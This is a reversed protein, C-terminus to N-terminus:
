LHFAVTGNKSIKDWDDFDTGLEGLKTKGNKLTGNKATILIEQVGELIYSYIRLSCDVPARGATGGARDGLLFIHKTGFKAM